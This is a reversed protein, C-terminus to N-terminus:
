AHDVACGEALYKQRATVSSATPTAVSPKGRTLLSPLVPDKYYYMYSGSHHPLKWTIKWEQIRRQGCIDKFLPVGIYAGM